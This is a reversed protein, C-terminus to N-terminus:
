AKPVAPPTTVNVSASADSIQAAVLGDIYSVVAAVDPLDVPEAPLKIGFEEEVTWLLEVTGLSDINLSEFTSGATLATPDVKYDRTLITKLRDFTADM